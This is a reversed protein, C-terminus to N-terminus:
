VWNLWRICGPSLRGARCRIPPRRRRAACCGTACWGARKRAISRTCCRARRACLRQGRGILSYPRQESGHVGLGLQEQIFLNGGAVIMAELANGALIALEHSDDTLSQNSKERDLLYVFDFLPAGVQEALPSGARNRWSCSRTWSARCSERNACDPWCNWSVCPPTPSAMRSRARSMRRCLQRHRLAGVVQSIHRRGAREMLQAVVPWLPATALPEFFPAVVYLTTQVFPDDPDLCTTASPTSCIRKSCARRRIPM